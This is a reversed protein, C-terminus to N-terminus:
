SRSGRLFLKGVGLRYFLSSVLDVVVCDCLGEEDWDHHTAVDSFM